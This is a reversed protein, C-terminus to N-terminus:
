GAPYSISCFTRATTTAIAMALIILVATKMKSTQYLEQEKHHPINSSVDTTKLYRRLS